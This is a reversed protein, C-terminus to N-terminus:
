AEEKYHTLEDALGDLPSVPARDTMVSLGGWEGLRAYTMRLEKCVAVTSYILETGELSLLADSLRGLRDINDKMGNVAEQALVDRDIPADAGGRRIPDKKPTLIPAPTLNQGGESTQGNEPSPTLIDAEAIKAQRAIRKLTSASIGLEKMIVARPAQAYLMRIAKRRTEDSITM